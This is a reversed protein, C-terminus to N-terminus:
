NRNKAATAAAVQSSFVHHGPLANTQQIKPNGKAKSEYESSQKRCQQILFHCHLERSTSSPRGLITNAFTQKYTRTYTEKKGHKGDGQPQKRPTKGRVLVGQSVVLFLLKILNVLNM